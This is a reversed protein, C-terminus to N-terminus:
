LSFKKLEVAINKKKNEIENDSDFVNCVFDDLCDEISNGELICEKYMFFMEEKLKEMDIKCDLLIEISNFNEYVYNEIEIKINKLIEDCLRGSLKDKVNKSRVMCYSYEVDNDLWEKDTLENFYKGLISFEVFITPNLELDRTPVDEKSFNDQYYTDLAKLINTKGSENKGALVTIRDQIFIDGTDNISKYDKIRIKNIKIM